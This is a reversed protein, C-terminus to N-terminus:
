EFRLCFFVGRCSVQSTTVFHGTVLPSCKRGSCWCWTLISDNEIAREIEVLSGKGIVVGGSPSLHVYDAYEKTGALRKMQRTFNFKLRCNRRNMHIDPFKEEENPIRFSVSDESVPEFNCAGFFVHTVRPVKRRQVHSTATSKNWTNKDNM